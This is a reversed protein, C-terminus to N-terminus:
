VHVRSFALRLRASIWKRSSRLGLWLLAQAARRLSNPGIKTWKGQKTAAAKSSKDELLLTGAPRSSVYYPLRFWNLYMDAFLLNM